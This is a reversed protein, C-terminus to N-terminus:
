VADQAYVDEFTEIEITEDLARTDLVQSEENERVVTALSRHTEGVFTEDGVGRTEIQVGDEM